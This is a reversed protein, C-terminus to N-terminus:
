SFPIFSHRSLKNGQPFFLDGKVLVVAGGQLGVLDTDTAAKGGGFM